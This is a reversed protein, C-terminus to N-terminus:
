WRAVCTGTSASVAVWARLDYVCELALGLRAKDPGVARADDVRKAALHADHRAVDVLRALDTRTRWRTGDRRPRLSVRVAPMTEREPVSVYSATAWVV